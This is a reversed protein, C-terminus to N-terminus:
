HRLQSRSLASRNTILHKGLAWNLGVQTQLFAIQRAFLLARVLRTRAYDRVRPFCPLYVISSLARPRSEPQRFLAKAKAKARAPPAIPALLEQSEACSLIAKVMRFRRVTAQCEQCQTLHQAIRAGEPLELENAAYAILDEYPVAHSCLSSEEEIFLCDYARFISPRTGISQVPSFDNKVPM